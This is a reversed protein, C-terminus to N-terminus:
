EAKGTEVYDPLLSCQRRWGDVVDSGCVLLQSGISELMAENRDVGSEGVEGVTVLTEGAM